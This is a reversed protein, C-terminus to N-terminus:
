RHASRVQNPRQNGGGHGAQERETQEARRGLDFQRIAVEFLQDPGRAAAVGIRSGSGPKDFHGAATTRAALHGAEGIQLVHHDAGKLHRAGNAFQREGPAIVQLGATGPLPERRGTAQPPEAGRLQRTFVRLALQGLQERFVAHGEAVLIGRARPPVPHRHEEDGAEEPEDEPQHNAPHASGAARHGEAAAAALHIGLFIEADREVVDGADILRHFLQPLHDFKQPAWM